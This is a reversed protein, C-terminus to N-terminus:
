KKEEVSVLPKYSPLSPNVKKLIDDIISLLLNFDRVDLRGEQLVYYEDVVGNEEIL